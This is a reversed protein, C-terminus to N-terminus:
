AGQVTWIQLMRFVMVAVTGGVVALILNSWKTRDSLAWFGAVAPIALACILYLAFELGDGTPQNGAMPAIIAIIAQAILLVEVLLVSGLTYDNPGRRALFFGLCIVAAICAVWVQLWAFWEIM